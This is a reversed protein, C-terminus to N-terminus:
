NVFYNYAIEAYDCRKYYHQSACREYAIAFALAAEREDELQLFQEYKFGSQYAFGAYDIQEKITDRLFYLQNQLDLGHVEPFYQKSWQCIGYFSGGPSYLWYQINLTGGGVEAMMNGLIGACVYDNYGLEKLYLWIETAVPYEEYKQAMIIEEYEKKYRQLCEDATNWELQALQIVPHDDAYGCERAANAMNEADIKRKECIEILLPLEKEENIIERYILCNNELEIPIPVEIEIITEVPESPIYAESIVPDNDQAAIAIVPITMCMVLSMVITLALVRRRVM